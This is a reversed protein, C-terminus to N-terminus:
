DAHPVGQATTDLSLKECLLHLLASHEALTVEIRKLRATKGNEESLWFLEYMIQVFCAGRSLAPHTKHYADLLDKAKQDLRVSVTEVTKDKDSM